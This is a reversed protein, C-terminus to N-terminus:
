THASHLPFCGRSARKSADGLNGAGFADGAGFAVLIQKTAHKATWAAVNKSVVKKKKPRGEERGTATKELSVGQGSEEALIVVAGREGEETAARGQASVRRGAGATAASSLADPSEVSPGEGREVKM